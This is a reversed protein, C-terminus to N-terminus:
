LWDVQGMVDLKTLVLDTVGNVAIARRLSVCDITGTRRPRGTTSGYEHGLVRIMDSDHENYETEFPGNGVRTTYAKFVGYVRDIKNPPIGANTCVAGVTTFSSTCFPYTCHWLDLLFGQAGEFIINLGRNMSDHLYRTTDIVKFPFKCNLDGLRTGTRNVQDSMCPGVGQKTTGILASAAGGDRDIHEQEVIPCRYDVYINNPNCNLEEIEKLLIKTNVLVGPTIISIKDRDLATAPLLHTVYKKDGIIITHGANSAGTYRCGIDMSTSLRDVVRGKGEDGYQLGIVVSVPM